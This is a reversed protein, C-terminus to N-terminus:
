VIPPKKYYLLEDIQGGADLALLSHKNSLESQGVISYFKSLAYEITFTNMAEALPIDKNISRRESLDLEFVFSAPIATMNDRGVELDSRIFRLCRSYLRAVADHICRYIEEMKESGAEARYRAEIDEIQSVERHSIVRIGNVLEELFLEIRM